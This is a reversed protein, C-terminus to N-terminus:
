TRSRLSKRNSWRWRPIRGYFDSDVMKRYLEPDFRRMTYNLQYYPNSMTMVWVAKFSVRVIDWPATLLRFYLEKGYFRHREYLIMRNFKRTLIQYICRYYVIAFAVTGLYAVVIWRWYDILTDIYGM